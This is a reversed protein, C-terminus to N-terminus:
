RQECWGRRYRPSKATEMLKLAPGRSCIVPRSQYSKIGPNIMLQFAEDLVRSTLEGSLLELKPQM